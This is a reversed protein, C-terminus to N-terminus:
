KTVNFPIGAYLCQCRPGQRPYHCLVEEWWYKQDMQPFAFRDLMCHHIPKATAVKDLRHVIYEKIGELDQVPMKDLPMPWCQQVVHLPVCMGTAAMFTEVLSSVPVMTEGETTWSWGM